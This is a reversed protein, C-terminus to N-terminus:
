SKPPQNTYSVSTLSSFVFKIGKFIAMLINEIMIIAVRIIGTVGSVIIWIIFGSTVVTICSVITEQWNLGDKLLALIVQIIENM